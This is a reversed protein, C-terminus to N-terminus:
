VCCAQLQALSTVHAVSSQMRDVVEVAAGDAGVVSNGSSRVGRGEEPDIVIVVVLWGVSGVLVVDAGATVVWCGVCGGLTAVGTGVM